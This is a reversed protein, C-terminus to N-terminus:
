PLCHHRRGTRRAVYVGGLIEALDRLYETGVYRSRAGLRFWLRCTRRVPASQSCPSKLTVFCCRLFPGTFWCPSRRSRPRPVQNDRRGLAGGVLWGVLPGLVVKQPRLGMAGVVGGAPLGVIPPNPAVWCEAIWGIPAALAASTLIRHWLAPIENPRQRLRAMAESGAVIAAGTLTAMVSSSTGRRAHLSAGAFAGITAATAVQSRTVRVDIVAELSRNRILGHRTDSGAARRM